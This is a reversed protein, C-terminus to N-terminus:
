TLPKVAQYESLVGGQVHRCVESFGAHLVTNLVQEPPVCAEITDWYYRMLKPTSPASAVLRSLAPVVGRMYIRLLFNRARGAPATIELICVRGGPKLVRRDLAADGGQANRYQMGQYLQSISCLPSFFIINFLTCAQRANAALRAIGANPLACFGIRTPKDM